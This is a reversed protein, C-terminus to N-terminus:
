HCELSLRMVTAESDASESLSPVHTECTHDSGNGWLAVLKMGKSVGTIYVQGHDDVLSTPNEEEQPTSVLAGFPVTSNGHLLTFLVRAGSRVKYDALAVAGRTPVVTKVPDSIDSNRSGSTNLSITNQRYPNSYPVVAYGRKDTYIGSAGSVNINAAGPARVLTMTEPLTQALTVGFPHAIIGGQASYNVRQSNNDYSYGGSLTGSSGRYAANMSGSTANNQESYSQQINYTLNNDKLAIGNIGLQHGANGQQSSNLAYTAWTQPLWKDLPIGITLLYQTDTQSTPMQTQSANFSYSVNNLMVNYGLTFNRESKNLKWYDQQYASLYLSGWEGLAQSINIQARSRRNYLDRYSYMDDAIDASDRHNLTEAFTYFNASSYRYSAITLNTNTADINKAYQLRYSMGTENQDDNLQSKAQTADFSISGVAHLDMGIGLAASQYIDAGILGGYVTMGWPMGYILQAQGFDPADSVDNSQYKGYAVSYSYSGSRLMVPLSSSSQTFTHESGDVETVIVDFDSGSSVQNIDRIEFTGPAVYTEYIKYGNQKITVKADSHAIGRILPAFGQESYPHMTSDSYVRVGRFQISDFIDSPTSSDGALFQSRLTKIDHTLTTSLEDWKEGSYNSVNRLRWGGLNAGSNLSLFNSNTNGDSSNRAYLQSGSYYYGLLLASLGDDWLEPSVADKAEQNLAIQPVRIDLRQTKESYTYSAGDIYQGINGITDEDKVKQFGSLVDVNVGYRRLDAKTLAPVLRNRDTSLKYNIEKKEVYNSNFYITSLFSGELMENDAIYKQLINSDALPTDHSLANLNFQDEAVAYTSLLMVALALASYAFRESRNQSSIDGRAM